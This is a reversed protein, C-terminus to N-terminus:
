CSRPKRPKKEMCAKWKEYKRIMGIRDSEISSYIYSGLKELNKRGFIRINSRKKGEKKTIRRDVTYEIGLTIFIDEIARWDQDIPATIQFQRLRYKENYYFCGDGDILGLLFFRRNNEPILSLVREASSKDNPGYGLNALIKVIKSDSMYFAYRDNWNKQSPNPYVYRHEGWNPSIQYLLERINDPETTAISLSTLANNRKPDGGLAGDAWMYGLIYCSVPSRYNLLELNQAHKVSRYSPLGLEKTRSTINHVRFRPLYELCKTPPTNHYISKLIADERPTCNLFAM